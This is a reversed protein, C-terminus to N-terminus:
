FNKVLVDGKNKRKFILTLLPIVTCFAIFPAVKLVPSLYASEGTNILVLSVALVGAAAAFCKHKNKFPKVSVAACYVYLASKVFVAMIWFSIHLVDLREFGTLKSLQFMSYLPFSLVSASDGMIGLMFLFLVFVTLYSATVSSVFSKISGGNIRDYLCLFVAIESTNCSLYLANTFINSRSNNIVPYLNVEEFSKLNSCLIVAIASVMLIFAFFSFRSLAEIGLCACYFACVCIFVAFIWSQTDPSLTTSAFYSFTGVNIAATLVFYIFYFASLWKVDFPNKGERCCFVAPLSLVLTFALSLVLSILIDASLPVLSVSQANTLCVVLRSIYLM